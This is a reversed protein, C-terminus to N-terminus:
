ASQNHEKQHYEDKRCHKHEQKPLSSSTPNERPRSDHLRPPTSLSRNWPILMDVIGVWWWVLERVPPGSQILDSQISKLIHEHSWYRFAGSSPNLNQVGNVLQAKSSM